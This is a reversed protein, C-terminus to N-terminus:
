RTWRVRFLNEVETYDYDLEGDYAHHLADGIGRALRADTTTVELGGDETDAISAIRKLPHDQKEREEVNNVLGLVEDRHEAQFAGSLTVSGAPCGDEIRRCAPCKSAHADVPPHGWVWRGERYMAGCSPCASPDPLKARLGYADSEHEQIRRDIRQLSAAPHTKSRKRPM